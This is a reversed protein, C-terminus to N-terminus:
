ENRLVRASRTFILMGAFLTCIIFSYMYQTNLADGRYEPYFGTRFLIVVHILPNFLLFERFPHPINDPLFFVGSMLMLPKTVIGYIKEYLAFRAFLVANGMGVGVALLSAAMAAEIIVLWDLVPTTHLTLLIAGLIIFAVVSMTGLQLIFRATVTDVPAVNPYNLLAKNGKVASSLYNVTSSYFNFAIYGTAFFLPFSTGLAPVRAIVQFLLTLLAVHAAPDLLAWIYGGPKSGFKTSMERILLASVIRAHTQLYM